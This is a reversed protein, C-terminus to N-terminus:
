SESPNSALNGILVTFWYNLIAISIYNSASVRSLWLDGITAYTMGGSPQFGAFKPLAYNKVIKRDKPKMPM